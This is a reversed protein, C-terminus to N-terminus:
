LRGMKAGEVSNVVSSDAILDTYHDLPKIYNHRHIAIRGAARGFAVAERLYLSPILWPRRVTYRNVPEKLLRRLCHWTAAAFSLRRLAFYYDGISGGIGGWSDKAGFARNGGPALLHRVGAEPIFMIRRKSRTVIRYALEADNRYNSGWYNEDMGGLEIFRSRRMSFNAGILSIIEARQAYATDFRLEFGRVQSVPRENWPQLVQGCVAPVTSDKEHVVRHAELLSPSPQIDDDLFLLIDGTALWAAANMAEGQSPKTKQFWRIERRHAWGTLAAQTEADHVPTQDIVVIEDGPRLLPLLADITEVLLRERKFTPLVVSISLDIYSPAIECNSM